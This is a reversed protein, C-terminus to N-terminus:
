HRCSLADNGPARNTFCLRRARASPHPSGARRSWRDEPRHVAPLLLGPDSIRTQTLTGPGGVWRAELQEQGKRRAEVYHFFSGRVPLVGDDPLGIWEPIGCMAVADHALAFVIAFVVCSAVRM